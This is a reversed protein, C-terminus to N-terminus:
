QSLTRCLRNDSIEEAHSLKRWQQHEFTLDEAPKFLWVLLEARSLNGQILPMFHLKM